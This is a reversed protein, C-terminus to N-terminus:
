TLSDCKVKTFHSLLDVSGYNCYVHNQFNSYGGDKGLQCKNTCNKLLSQVVVCFLIHFIKHICVAFYFESYM